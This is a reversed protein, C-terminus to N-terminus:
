RRKRIAVLGILGAGLLYAAGPVPVPKADVQAIQVGSFDVAYTDSTHGNEFGPIWMDMYTDYMALQFYGNDGELIGVLDAINVTASVIDFGPAIFIPNGWEIVMHAASSDPIVQDDFIAFVFEEAIMPSTYYNLNLDTPEWITGPDPEAAVMANASFSLAITLLMASLITLLYKKM